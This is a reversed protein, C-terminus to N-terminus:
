IKLNKYINLLRKRDALGNTGGNIKKTVGVLDDKEALRGIGHRRWYWGAFDIAYPMKLMMDPESVFDVCTYASYLDYNWFGTCQLAGRGRYKWGDGFVKNGLNMLGYEGGYVINAIMEQNAPRTQTRGYKECEAITIRKRSFTDKLGQITYNLNENMKTLGYSEHDIQAMFHVRQLRTDIEHNDFVGQLIDGYKKIDIM